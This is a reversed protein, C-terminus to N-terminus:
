MLLNSLSVLPPEHSRCAAVAPQKKAEGFYLHLHHTLKDFFFFVHQEEQARLELVQLDKSFIEQLAKTM